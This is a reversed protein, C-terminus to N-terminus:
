ELNPHDAPEWGCHLKNRPGEMMNRVWGMATCALPVHEFKPGMFVQRRMTCNRKWSAM